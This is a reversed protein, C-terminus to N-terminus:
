KGRKNINSYCEYADEFTANVKMWSRFADNYKRQKQPEQLGYLYFCGVLFAVVVTRLLYNAWYPMPDHEARLGVDNRGVFGTKTQGCAFMTKSARLREARSDTGTMNFNNM